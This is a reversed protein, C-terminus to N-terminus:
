PSSVSSASTNLQPQMSLRTGARVHQVQSASINHAEKTEEQFSAKTPLPSGGGISLRSHHGPKAKNQSREVVNYQRMKDDVKRKLEQFNIIQQCGDQNFTPRDAQKTFGHVQLKQNIVAEIKQMTELILYWSKVDLIHCLCHAINFFTKCILINRETMTLEVVAPKSGHGGGLVSKRGSARPSAQGSSVTTVCESCLAQLFADRAEYCNASGCAGICSQYAKLLMQINSEDPTTKILKQHIELLPKWCLLLM